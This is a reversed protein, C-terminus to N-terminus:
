FTRQYLACGQCVDPAPGDRLRRRFDRYPRGYWIEPFTQETLRGLEVRDDGMVM